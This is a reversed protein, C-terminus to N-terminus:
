PMNGTLTQLSALALHYRVVGDARSTEALIVANQADVVELATAEGASYRLNTLRLSERATDVSKQLSVLADGSTRMEAYFEELQALLRRQTFNLATRAANRRLEGQKVRDHTALWDWVPIDLTATASYGLNRVGDPGNVAFQPADIGYSYNLSLEPLYAARALMVEQDAAHAAAIASKLEPNNRSAAAEVEERLPAPPPQDTDDALKYPTRPDPFLLVGLDLRAKQAALTADALDRERQQTQLSAKVVDAHAVERGAELQQSLTLFHQAEAAALTAIKQKQDAALLTYYANVVNAILGRRAVELQAAAQASLAGAKRFGAIGQLGFTENVQAQSVYEHAANNAIFRPTTPTNAQTSSQATSPTNASLSSPQTYIYQNHYVVSPLLAARAISRDLAAVGHDAVSTAFAPDNAQARRIVEGLTLVAPSADVTPARLPATEQGLGRSLPMLLLLAVALWRNKDM